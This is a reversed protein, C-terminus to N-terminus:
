SNGKTFALFPDGSGPVTAWGTIENFDGQEILTPPEYHM